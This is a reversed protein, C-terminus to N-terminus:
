NRFWSNYMSQKLQTHTLREQTEMVPGKEITEVKEVKEVNEVKEIQVEKVKRTRPVADRSGTPRGAKGM